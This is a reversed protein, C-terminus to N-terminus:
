TGGPKLKLRVHMLIFVLLNIALNIALDWIIAARAIIKLPMRSSNHHARAL